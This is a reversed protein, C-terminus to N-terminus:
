NPQNNIINDYKEMPKKFSRPSYQLKSRASFLNRFTLLTFYRPSAVLRFGGRVFFSLVTIFFTQLSGQWSKIESLLVEM